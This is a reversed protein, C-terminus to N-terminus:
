GERMLEPLLCGICDREDRGEWNPRTRIVNPHISCSEWFQVLLRNLDLWQEFNAEGITQRVNDGVHFLTLHYPVYISIKRLNRHEPTITQLTATIWEVNLSAPRFVAGGLKTAKSLDISGSGPEVLFPPLNDISVCVGFPHVLADVLLISLSSPILVSRWWRVQWRSIRRNHRTLTLKRFHIGGPLSLLRRAIPKMGGALSLEMNGTFM